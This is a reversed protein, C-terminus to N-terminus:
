ANGDGEGYLAKLCHCCHSGGMTLRHCHPCEDFQALDILRANMDRLKQWKQADRAAPHPGAIIDTFRLPSDFQGKLDALADTAIRGFTLVIQPRKDECLRAIHDMDAPFKHDSRWGWRPSANEWWIADCVKEGFIRKITLGTYNRGDFLGCKRIFQMRGTLRPNAFDAELRKATEEDRTYANQLFALVM